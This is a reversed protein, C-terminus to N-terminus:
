DMGAPCVAQRRGCHVCKAGGCKVRLLSFCSMPKLFVTVPCLCRRFARNDRLKFATIIGVAYYVLDRLIFAWFM